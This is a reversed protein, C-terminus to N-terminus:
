SQPYNEHDNLLEYLDNLTNVTEMKKKLLEYRIHTTSTRALPVERRQAQKGLCHNTHFIAGSQGASLADVREALDPMVEWFSAGDTGALLYAHGSTVPASILWETMEPLTRAQLMRRVLLPWMLGPRAGNTNINNVGVMRGASHFGMMGVCGVVSFIRLRHEAEVAPADIVCVFNKASGHMDWTQGSLPTGRHVFVTSCGQDPVQIDRFDTYNNLVVLDELPLGAGRSIGVLEDTLAADYEASIRWQQQALESVISDRLGPNKEFMLGRRIAALQRVADRYTEGHQEGWQLPSHAREYRIVPFGCDIM